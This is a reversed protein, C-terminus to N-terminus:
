AQDFPLPMVAAPVIDEERLNTGPLILDVLEPKTGSIMWAVLHALQFSVVPPVADGVHRYMNGISGSEFRYDEPFGTLLGMERVTCLRDQDPHSYRGNGYHSCERKITPAPRDWWMRGYVDPHSGFQGATIKRNMAPTLIEEREPHDRLDPWAGGDHPMAALRKRTTERGASTSTHSPDDPHQEGANMPPLHGIARRVTVAEDRVTAGSWLDDLTRLPIDSRTAVVLARERKQAVGFRTLVHTEGHVSYGLEELRSVLADYHHRHNGTILERANELVFVAPRLEDVFLAMRAVLSNRQDDEVHNNPNTRSFGTCPPCAALVTLGDPGVDDAILASLESPELNGINRDWPAIGINAKYTLNCDLAGEGSSPKGYQLDVAGVVRFAHHAHFGYSMGGAGSFLDVVTLQPKTHPKNM